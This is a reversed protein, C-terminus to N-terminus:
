SCCGPWGGARRTWAPTCTRPRPRWPRTFVAPRGTARSRCPTATASNGHAVCPMPWCPCGAPRMAAMGREASDGLDRLLLEVLGEEIDLDVNQAPYRIAERLEDQSMPGVLLQRDQLADRLPPYNACTAYFDARVGLVVLARAEALDVLLEIFTRQQQEDTCLTFLEEFQDVVVVVRPASREGGIRDRVVRILAQPDATLDHADTGMLEAAEAARQLAALPDATPTLALVPWASSGPLAGDDLKALLGAHLLSSKGAGSPAVVVQVGGTSLRQDLRKVLQATLQERGFFWRAEGRGFALLGPYPCEV